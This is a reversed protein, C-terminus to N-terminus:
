HGVTKLSPVKFSESIEHLRDSMGALGHGGPFQRAAHKAIEAVREAVMRKEGPGSPLRAVDRLTTFTVGANVNPHSRSAPLSALHSGLSPLLEMLNIAANLFLRKDDQDDPRRGFAQVLCRLLHCYISNTLDLV